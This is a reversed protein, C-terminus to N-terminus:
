RGCCVEWLMGGVAYRGCCVEGGRVEWVHGGRGRLGGCWGGDEVRVRSAHARREHAHTCDHPQTRAVRADDTVPGIEVLMELRRELDKIIDEALSILHSADVVPLCVGGRRWAAVGGRRWAAV